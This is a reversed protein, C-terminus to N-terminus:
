AILNIRIFLGFPEDRFSPRINRLNTQGSSHSPSNDSNVFASDFNFEDIQHFEPRLSEYPMKPVWLRSCIAHISRSRLCAASVIARRAACDGGALAPSISSFVALSIM